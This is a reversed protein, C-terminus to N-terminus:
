QAVGLLRVAGHEVDGGACPAPEEGLLALWALRLRVSVLCQYQCREQTIRKYAPRTFATRVRVIPSGAARV